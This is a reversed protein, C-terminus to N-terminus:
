DDRILRDIEDFLMKVTREFPVINNDALQGDIYWIDSPCILKGTFVPRDRMGLIELWTSRRRFDYHGGILKKLQRTSTVGWKAYAQAKLSKLSPRTTSM